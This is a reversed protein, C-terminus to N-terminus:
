RIPWDIASVAAGARREIERLAPSRGIPVGTLAPPEGRRLPLAVGGVRRLAPRPFAGVRHELAPLDQPLDPAARLPGGRQDVRDLGEDESASALHFSNVTFDIM